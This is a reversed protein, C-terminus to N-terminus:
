SIKSIIYNLIKQTAEEINIKSTDLTLNPNKPVEYDSSIGTFNAIEGKRARAYLGKTDRCECELLPTSVYIEIFNQKGVISRVLERDKEYPSIFSALIIIGANLMLHSIEGIRRINEKRHEKSFSLDSCIGNRLNDGDLAYTKFKKKFLERELNNSLTSKGSGSLGTFWILKPKQNLLEIRGQQSINFDFNTINTNIKKM